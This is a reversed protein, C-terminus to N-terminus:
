LITQVDDLYYQAHVHLAHTFHIPAYVSATIKLLIFPNLDISIPQTM